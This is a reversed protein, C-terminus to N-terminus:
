RPAALSALRWGDSTQVLQISEIAATQGSAAALVVASASNGHVSVKSVSITPDQVSSVFAKMAQDCSLGAAALHSILNPALVQTCLQHYDRKATAHAFQEVKAQVQQSASAGCGAVVYAVCMLSFGRALRM